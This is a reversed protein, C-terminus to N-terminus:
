FPLDDAELIKGKYYVAYVKMLEECDIRLLDLYKPFYKETVVDVLFSKSDTEYRTFEFITHDVQTMSVEGDSELVEFLENQLVVVPFYLIVYVDKTYFSEPIWEADCASKHNVFDYLKNFVDHLGDPHTAFWEKKGDSQKKKQLFSCYQTCRQFSNYHFSKESTTFSDFEWGPGGEEGYPIQEIKNFRFKGFITFKKKDTRQFFVAPQPNNSCEVIINSEVRISLEKDLKIESHFSNLGFVDIERSKGTVPDPYVENPYLTYENDSLIKLLRSELLYGSRKLADKMEEANIKDNNEV